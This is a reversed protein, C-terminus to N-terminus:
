WPEWGLASLIAFQSRQASALSSLTVALYGLCVLLVTGLLLSRTEGIQQLYIIGAGISIWREQVWGLPAVNQIAGDKGQNIGPIYVLIPKPSSGLTILVQLGTRQHILQAVHTVHLWGSEDATVNGTVRVRIVSICDSGRIREAAALTSLALPPQLSFGAPNTTPLINIPAVSHGRANYRLTAPSVDYTNEPLWNLPNAFETALQKDNFVGTV